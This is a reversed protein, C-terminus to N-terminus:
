IWLLVLDFEEQSGEKNRPVLLLACPWKFEIQIFSSPCANGLVRWGNPILATNSATEPRPATTVRGKTLPLSLIHEQLTLDLDWLTFMERWGGSGGEILRREAGVSCKGTEGQKQSLLVLGPRREGLPSPSFHGSPDAQVLIGMKHWWGWCLTHSEGRSSWRGWSPCSQLCGSVWLLFFPLNKWM